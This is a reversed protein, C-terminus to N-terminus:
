EASTQLSTIVGDTLVPVVPTVPDNVRFDIKFVLIDGDEDRVLEADDHTRIYRINTRGIKTWDCYIMMETGLGDRGTLYKQFPLIVSNAYYKDGKCCFKVTMDYPKMKLGDTPIYEDGGDEDHWDNSDLEKSENYAMFPIEACFIDWKASTEYMPSGDKLKQIYVKGYEM